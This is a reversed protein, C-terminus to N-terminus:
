CQHHNPFYENMMGKSPLQSEDEIAVFIFKASDTNGILGNM